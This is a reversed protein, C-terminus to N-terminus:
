IKTLANLAPAYESIFDILARKVFLITETLIEFLCDTSFEVFLANCIYDVGSGIRFCRLLM